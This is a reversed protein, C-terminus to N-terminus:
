EVEREKLSKDAEVEVTEVLAVPAFRFAAMLQEEREKAQLRNYEKVHGFGRIKEPLSAIEVATQYNSQDLGEIVEGLTWEYEALLRQEMKREPSYGFLDFKTGRLFRLKALQRFLPLVWGGFEHKIQYGTVPDRSALLPPALHFKLSFNGEFQQNLQQEFQGNTYLRAVEYEDKIALLKFYNNAVALSLLCQDEDRDAFTVREAQHVKDVLTRYRDAYAQNQYHILFEYRYNIVESLSQPHSAAEKLGVLAKVREPDCAFRRGWQFAKINITVSVNNVTIAQEIADLPLPIM